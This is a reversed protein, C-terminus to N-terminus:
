GKKYSLYKKAALRFAEIKHTLAEPKFLEDLNRFVVSNRIDELNRFRVAILKKDGSRITLVKAPNLDGEVTLLDYYMMEYSVEKNHKDLPLAYPLSFVFGYTSYPYEGTTADISYSSYVTPYFIDKRIIEIFDGIKLSNFMKNKEKQASM